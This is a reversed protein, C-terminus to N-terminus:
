NKRSFVGRKMGGWIAVLLLLITIVTLIWFGASLSKAQNDAGDGSVTNDSSSIKAAMPTLEKGSETCAGSITVTISPVDATSDGKQNILMVYWTTDGLGNLQCESGLTKILLGSSDVLMAFWGDPVSTININVSKFQSNNNTFKLAYKYSYGDAADYVGEADSYAVTVEGTVDDNFDKDVVVKGVSTGDITKVEITMDSNGAGINKAHYYGEVTITAIGPETDSVKKPVSVSYVADLVLAGDASVFYTVPNDGTNEIKLTVKARGNDMTASEVTVTDDTLTKETTSGFNFTTDENVTFASITVTQAEYTYSDDTAKAVLDMAEVNFGKPLEVVYAGDKVEVQITIDGSKVYLYGDVEAGVYGKLTVKEVTTYDKVEGADDFTKSYVVKGDSDTIQFYYKYGKQLFYCGDDDKLYTGITVDKSDDEIAVVEVTDKENVKTVSVEFCEVAELVTDKADPYINIVQSDIYQKDTAKDQVTVTYRGPIIYDIEDGVTKSSITYKNIKQIEGNTVSVLLDYDSGAYADLVLTGTYGATKDDDTYFKFDNESITKVSSKKGESDYAVISFTDLVATSTVTTENSKFALDSSGEVSVINFIDSYNDMAAKAVTYSVVADKPVYLKYSGDSGTVAPIIYTADGVKVTFTLPIFPIGVSTTTMNTKYNVTASASYAVSMKLTLDAGATVKSLYAQTGNTAYVTYDGAPVHGSFKGESDATFVYAKKGDASIFAVTGAVAKDSSDKLVGNVAEGTGTYETLFGDLTKPLYVSTGNAVTSYGLAAWISGESSTISSAPYVSLTATATSTSKDLTVTKAQVSVYEASKVFVTYEGTPVYVEGTGTVDFSLTLGNTGVFTVTVTDSMEKGFMDNVTVTTKAAGIDITLDQLNDIITVSSVTNLLSGDKGYVNITYVDPAIPGVTFKGTTPDVNATGKIAGDSGVFSVTVGTYDQYPKNTADVITGDQTVPELHCDYSGTTASANITNVCIGGRLSDAGVFFKVLYEGTSPVYISFNGNKDTYTTSCQIYSSSSKSDYDIKEFVAVKVGSVGDTSTGTGTGVHGTKVEKADGYEYMIVSSLYNIYGGSINQLAIAEYADMEKWEGDSTAKYMVHWYAIHFNDIGTGPQAKVTGDSDSLKSLLDLSSSLGYDSPTVGILANWLFTEYMADQYTYYLQAYYGYKYYLETTSTVNFLSSPCGRSDRALDNFYALTTAYTGDNAYVPIMSSDVEIYSIKNGSKSCIKNYLDSLQASNLKENLYHVGVVYPLTESSLTTNYEVFDDTHEAVYNRAYNEDDIIKVIYPVGADDLDDYESFEATYKAANDEALRVILSALAGSSGNSLYVSAMAAAGGGNSSTITSFGGYQAAADSYGYWSVLAGDKVQNSYHNWASNTLTSDSTNITYSLGGFYNAHEDNTPTSADVAYVATPLAVLLVAVLLSVLPFFNLAKKAGAKFGNGRLSRLYAKMDVKRIISVIVYASAIAFASGALIAYETSFWGVFFSAFMWLMTFHYLLSRTHARYKYAMWLGCFLPFWVTLWGYYSAMTSISTRSFQDALAKALSGTVPVSGALIDHSIEPVAVALVVAVVVMIIATVPISMVWPKKELALFVLSYVIALVALLCGGQYVADWLGTPIYYVAGVIIGILLIVMPIGLLVGLDRGGVRQVVAAILMMVSIVMVAAWFSVWTLVILAFLGGAVLTYARIPSVKLVSKVGTANLEDAKDYASAVFYVFWATLFCLLPYETGNSFVTTLISVAFVAYFLASVIAITEDKFLRKALLYVPLCTLAGLIPASWALTGAAATANSVGFLTVIWAIAAMLYDFLPGSVSATGYPYNMTIENAPNYTGALIEAIIRLHNSASSGGSLAYNDGASIGYAFVFRLLFAVIVIALLSLLRWHLRFWNGNGGKSSPKSAEGESVAPSPQEKAHIRM